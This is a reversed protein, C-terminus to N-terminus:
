RIVSGSLRLAPVGHARMGERLVLDEHYAGSEAAYGCADSEAPCTDIIKDDDILMRRHAPGPEDVLVGTHGHINRREDVAEGKGLRTLPTAQECRALFELLVGLIDDVSVAQTVLEPQSGGHQAASEVFVGVDPMDLGVAAFDGGAMHDDPDTPQFHRIQGVNGADPREAALKQVGGRPVM